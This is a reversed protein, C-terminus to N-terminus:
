QILSLLRDGIVWCGWLVFPVVVALTLGWVVEDSTRQSLRHAERWQHFLRIDM